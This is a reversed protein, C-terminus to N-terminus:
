KTPPALSRFYDLLLQTKTQSNPPGFGAAEAAQFFAAAMEKAEAESGGTVKASVELIESNKDGKQLRWREVTVPLPFGKLKCQRDFIEGRVPGHAVLSGWQFAPLRAEVLRRQKGNFLTEPSAGARIVAGYQDPPITFTLSRSVLPVDPNTWEIEQPISEEVDSLEGQGSIMRLKVTSVGPTGGKHRVRLILNKAQLAADNTDFFLVDLPAPTKKELGLSAVAAAVYDPPVVLKFESGDGASKKGPASVAVGLWALLLCILAIRRRSAPLILKMSKM